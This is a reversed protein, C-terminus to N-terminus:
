IEITEVLEKLAFSIAKRECIEKRLQKLDKQELTVPLKGFTLSFDDKGTNGLHAMRGEFEKTELIVYCYLINGEVKQITGAALKKNYLQEVKKTLEHNLIEAAYVIDDTKALFIYEKQNHVFIDGFILSTLETM